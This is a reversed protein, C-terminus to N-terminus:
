QSRRYRELALKCYRHRLLGLEQLELEVEDAVPPDVTLAVEQVLLDGLMKRARELTKRVSGDTLLKNQRAGLEHAMEKDTADPNEEQFRLMAYYNANADALADWARALLQERWRERFAHDPDEAPAALIDWVSSDTGLLHPQKRQRQRYKSVLHFLVTKVYSRFRGYQPSARRFDGRLLSLSFEQTLDDAAHPDGLAGLVYRRVAPGYRVLVLQQAAPIAEAPGALAQRLLDWVTSIKSLRQDSGEGSM